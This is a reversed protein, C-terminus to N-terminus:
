VANERLMASDAPAGNKAGLRVTPSPRTAWQKLPPACPEMKDNVERVM